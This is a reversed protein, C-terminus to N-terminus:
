HFQRYSCYSVYELRTHLYSINFEEIDNTINKVKREFKSFYNFLDPYLILINKM